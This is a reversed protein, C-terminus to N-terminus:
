RNQFFRQIIFIHTIIVVIFDVFGFVAVVEIFMGPIILDPLNFSGAFAARIKEAEVLFCDKVEPGIIRILQSRFLDLNEFFFIWGHCLQFLFERPPARTATWFTENESKLDFCRM